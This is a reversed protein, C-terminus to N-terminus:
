RVSGGEPRAARFAHLGGTHFQPLFGIRGLDAVADDSPYYLVLWASRDRNLHRKAEEIDILRAFWPRGSREIELQARGTSVSLEHPLAIVTSESRGADRLYYRMLISSNADAFVTLKGSTQARMAAAVGRWDEGVRLDKSMFYAVAGIGFSLIFAGTVVSRYRPLVALPAFACLVVWGIQAAMITRELLIPRGLYSIVTIIAVAGFSVLLMLLGALRTARQPASIIAALGLLPWAGFVAIRALLGWAGPLGLSASFGHALLFVFDRLNLKTIWANVSLPGVNLFMWLAPGALVLFCLAAVCLRGFIVRDAREVVLWWAVASAGLLGAYILSIYHSWLMLAMSAGLCAFPVFSPTRGRDRERLIYAMSALAASLAFVLQTYTRTEQGYLLQIYSLSFAAGALLGIRHSVADPAMWRATLYVLPVTAAGFVASLSRLSLATDGFLGTWAKLAIYYLPPNPEIRSIIGLLDSVSQESFWLSCGEDWWLSIDTITFLRLALAALTVVGVWLLARLTSGPWAESQQHIPVAHGDGGTVFAKQWAGRHTGARGLALVRARHWLSGVAHLTRALM